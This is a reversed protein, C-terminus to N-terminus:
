TPRRVSGGATAGTPVARDTAAVVGDTLLEDVAAGDYGCEALLARTHEGHDCFPLVQSPTDSFRLVPAYRHYRGGLSPHSTTTMMGTGTAQEDEYLFAFHSAGDAVACGVGATLLAAEWDGASRTLFIPGLEEELAVRHEDRAAATAFRPDSALVPAGAADCLAVFTTDDDAVVMVWRPDPNGHPLAGASAAAACEYLRHTASTGFQRRDVPRRDPKGEYALADEFNLYLNSVIMSSEVSQGEGTRHAAFLGLAMAVAHGAAAVPDAGSERLPPNGEGTQHATQGAFAAIVPDIAPQRAHPGTSGYSAAYQYVLTPNIRRLTAEDIGLSVPVKGRFSHVFLDADAVLRHLVARGREDKLDLAISEKGQMARVMNNHGLALVPDGGGRGLLRYPDGAIPEIKIVRAGLEALLASAFPTAYYYGAEVVTVGDLPGRLDTREPAPATVATVPAGLVEDTHAGPEPAPGAVHGAARSIKAIPGVQVVPGVRPDDLEVLNGTAALQPHRLAEQTTQIVDACVNGNALYAEIWEASTREKMRAQLREVLEVKADDDPFRWPAGKFREDEWIWTFGIAEIWAPFFHPESLSHMIWRGDACEVMMGTLTVERPDRHHALPNIADPVTETSSSRDAPLEEGERLLWRVQPNQRCTIAMLMNTDVRQGRGSVDRARLAGLIGLVALTGAFYSADRCSRYIPRKGDQEWGPQDRLIGAKAMVLDDDAPADDFPGGHGYGSIACRVLLPNVEAMEADTSDAVPAGLLQGDDIVVDFATALRVLEARGAASTVDLAISRKGRHLLLDAPRGLRSTGDEPLEVKVVEAGFDALIMGALGVSASAGCELVRIGSCPGPM